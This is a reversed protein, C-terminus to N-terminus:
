IDVYHAEGGLEEILHKLSYMEGCVRDLSEESDKSPFLRNAARLVYLLAETDSYDRQLRELSQRNQSEADFKEAEELKRLEWFSMQSKLAEQQEETFIAM